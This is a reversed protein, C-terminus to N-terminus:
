LFSLLFCPLFNSKVQFRQFLIPDLLKNDLCLDQTTVGTGHFCLCCTLLTCAELQQAPTPMWLLGHFFMSKVSCKWLFSVLFGNLQQLVGMSHKCPFHLYTFRTKNCNWAVCTRSLTGKFDSETHLVTYIVHECSSFVSGAAKQEGADWNAPQHTRIFFCCLSLYRGLGWCHILDWRPYLGADRSLATPVPLRGPCSGRLGAPSPVRLKETRNPPGFGAWVLLTVTIVRKQHSTYLSLNASPLLLCNRILSKEYWFTM